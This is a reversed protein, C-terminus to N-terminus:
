RSATAIQVATARSRRLNWEYWRPLHGKSLEKADRKALASSLQQQEVPGLRTLSAILAPYADLSLGRALYEVDIKGTHAYRAVNARAVWADANWFVMVVLTSLAVNMVGRALGRVDFDRIVHWSVVALVGLTLVMYAQAYVRATTYGYSDEYLSMRHFASFLICGVAALLALSPWMLASHARQEDATTLQQRVAVILLAAGTAAVALEGFGRHAYEAFTVGSGATSPHTALLYSIQLLVFLWSTAATAFLVVRRETLGIRPKTAVSAIKPVARAFSTQSALYAGVVFLSLLAGFIIRPLADLTSLADAVADRARALLPDASAYLLALIVVLPTAMLAGRLAPKEHTSGSADVVAKIASGAAGVTRALGNLPATVIYTAGYLRAPSQDPAVLLALAMLSAAILAIFATLIGSTTISAGAALVAAFGLPLAIARLTEPDPRRYVLLGAITTFTWITWNIGPLADFLVLAGLTGSLIGLALLLKLRM